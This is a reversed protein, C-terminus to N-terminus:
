TEIVYRAAARPMGPPRQALNPSATHHMTVGKAWSIDITRLYERFGAVDWVQGVLEYGM